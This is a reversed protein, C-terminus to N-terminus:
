PGVECDEKGLSETACGCAPCRPQPLGKLIYGCNNCRPSNSAARRVMDRVVAALGHVLGAGLIAPCAGMSAVYLLRDCLLGVATNSLLGAAVFPATIVSLAGAVTVWWRRQYAGVCGAGVLLGVVIVVTTWPYPLTPRLAVSGAPLLASLAFLLALSWMPKRLVAKVASM